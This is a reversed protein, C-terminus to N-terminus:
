LFRLLESTSDAQASSTVPSFWAGFSRCRRKHTTPYPRETLRHLHGTLTAPPILLAFASMLLSLAPSFGARRFVLPEQGVNIPAPHTSGLALGFPTTSPFCTLIGTSPTVAFPVSFAINAPRRNDRNLRTPQNETCIRFILASAHHRPVVTSFRCIGQKRSFGRLM